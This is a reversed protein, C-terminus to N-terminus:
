REVGSVGGGLLISVNEVSNFIVSPTKKKRCKSLFSPFIVVEGHSSVDSQIQSHHM